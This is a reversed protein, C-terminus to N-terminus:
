GLTVLGILFVTILCDIFCVFYYWVMQVYHERQLVYVFPYMKIDVMLDLQTLSTLQYIYNLFSDMILVILMISKGYDGMCM